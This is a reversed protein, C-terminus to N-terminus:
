SSLATLAADLSRYVDFVETLGILKLPRSTQPGDAIVAFRGTRGVSDSTALLASMGASSLFEVESLDVILVAPMPCTAAAVAHGLQPATVADLVGAVAIVSAGREQRRAISCAGAAVPRRDPPQEV